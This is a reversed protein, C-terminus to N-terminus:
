QPLLSVFVYFQVHHVPLDPTATDPFSWIVDLLLSVHKDFVAILLASGNRVGVTALEELRVPADQAGPLM